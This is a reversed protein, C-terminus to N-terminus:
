KRKMRPQKLPLCWTRHRMLWEKEIWPLVKDGTVKKFIISFLSFIIFLSLGLPFLMSSSVQVKLSLASNTKPFPTQPCTDIELFDCLPTWGQKVNYELLRDAPILERVRRNHEEYSAIAHQKNLPPLPSGLPTELINDDKYVISFLWRFQRCTTQYTLEFYIM